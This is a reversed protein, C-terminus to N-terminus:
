LGKIPTGRYKRLMSATKKRANARPIGPTRSLSRMSSRIASFNPPVSEESTSPAPPAAAAASKTEEKNEPSPISNEKRGCIAIKYKQRNTMSSLPKIDASAKIVSPMKPLTPSVPLATKEMVIPNPQEAAAMRVVRPSSFSCICRRAMRTSGYIEHLAFIGTYRATTEEKKVWEKKARAAM